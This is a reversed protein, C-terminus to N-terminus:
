LRNAVIGVTSGPLITVYNETDHIETDACSGKFRVVYRCFVISHPYAVRTRADNNLMQTPYGNREFTKRLFQVEEQAWKCKDKNLLIGHDSLTTMVKGLLGLHEEFNESMILIDDLYVM